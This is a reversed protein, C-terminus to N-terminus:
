GLDKIKPAKLGTISPVEILEQESGLDQNEYAIENEAEEQALATNDAYEQVVKKFNGIITKSM